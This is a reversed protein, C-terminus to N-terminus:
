HELSVPVPAWGWAEGRDADRAHQEALVQLHRELRDISRAPLPVFRDKWGKSNRILLQRRDLDLDMIRLACCESVRLGGGYLISAMRGHVSKPQLSELVRRVEAVSLVTPLRVPRKARIASFEGLPAKLVARYLFVLACLAQSQTSAALRRDVALHTLFQETGTERLDGPHVWKGSRRYHYRLYDEVWRRYCEQTAESFNMTRCARELQELLKM